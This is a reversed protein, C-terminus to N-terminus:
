IMGAVGQPQGGHPMPTIMVGKPLKPMSPSPQLGAQKKARASLSGGDSTVKRLKGVNKKDEDDNARRTPMSPVEEASKNRGFGSFISHTITMGRKRPPPALESNATSPPTLNKPLSVTPINSTSSVLKPEGILNKNVVRKKAPTFMANSQQITQVLAHPPPPPTKASNISPSMNPTQLMAPSKGGTPPPPIPITPPASTNLPPLTNGDFSSRRGRMIQASSATSNVRPRRFSSTPRDEDFASKLTGTDFDNSIEPGQFRERKVAFAEEEAARSQGTMMAKSLDDKFGDVRSTIANRGFKPTIPSAPQTPPASRSPSWRERDDTWGMPQGRGIPTSTGSNIQQEKAKKPKIRPTHMPSHLPHPLGIPSRRPPEGPRSPPLNSTILKPGKPGDRIIRDEEMRGGFETMRNGKGDTIGLGKSNGENRGLFGNSGKTKLKHFGGAANNNRPLADKPVEFQMEHQSNVKEQNRLNQQILQRRFALQQQWDRDRDHDDQEREGARSLTREDFNEWEGEAERLAREDEDSKVESLRSPPPRGAAKEPIVPATVSAINIPSVPEDYDDGNNEVGHDEKDGFTYVKDMDDYEWLNGGSSGSAESPRTTESTNSLKSAGYVSSPKSTGIYKSTRSFRTYSSAAYVSSHGSDSRLHQRVLLSLGPGIPITPSDDDAVPTTALVPSTPSLAPNRFSSPSSPEVFGRDTIYSTSSMPGLVPSADGDNIRSRQTRLPPIELSVASANRNLGNTLDEDFSLESASPTALFSQPGEETCRGPDIASEISDQRGRDVIIELSITPKNKMRPSTTGELEPTEVKGPNRTLAAPSFPGQTILPPAYHVPSQPRPELGFNFSSFNDVLDNAQENDRCEDEGDTFSLPTNPSARKSSWAQQQQQQQRRSKPSVPPTNGQQELRPSNQSSSMTSIMLPSIAGKKRLSALRDIRDSASTQQDQLQQDLAQEYLPKRPKGNPFGSDPSFATSPLSPTGQSNISTAATSSRTLSVPTSTTSSNTFRKDFDASDGSPSNLCDHQDGQRESKSFNSDSVDNDYFVRRGMSPPSGLEESSHGSRLSNAPVRYVKQRGGFLVNGEGGRARNMIGVSEDSMSSDQTYTTMRNGGMSGDLSATEAIDGLGMFPAVPVYQQGNATAEMEGRGIFNEGNMGASAEAAAATAQESQLISFRQTLNPMLLSTRFEDSNPLVHDLDVEPQPPPPQNKGRKFLTLSPMPPVGGEEEKTKKKNRLRHM